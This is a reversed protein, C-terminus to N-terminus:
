PSGQEIHSSPAALCTSTTSTPSLQALQAQSVRWHAM